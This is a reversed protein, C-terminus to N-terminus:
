SAARGSGPEGDSGKAKAVVVMAARVLREGQVYGPQVEALVTGPAHDATEVQQIAEHVSPDFPHGVTPVRAIGERGLSETFQRQVLSLGDAVAKVDTSRQASQIARELNDFVPLVARLLDERGTRRADELEKRMRKRFNDFDAATRLWQDKMRSAENQAATLPDDSAQPASPEPLAETPDGAEGEGDRAAAEAGRAANRNSDDHMARVIFGGARFVWAM